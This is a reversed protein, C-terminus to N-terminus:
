DNGRIANYGLYLTLLCMIIFISNVVAPCDDVQFTVIDGIFGIADVIINHDSGPEVNPVGDVTYGLQGGFISVTFVVIIMLIFIDYHGM